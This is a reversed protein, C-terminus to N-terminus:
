AAAPVLTSIARVIRRLLDVVRPGWRSAVDDDLAVVAHRRVATVHSWGPRNAVTAGSQHCCKTDALFIVDPDADVIYEASLQPYDPVKSKAADAINRLGVLRYLQGIFTSSTVSYYTPDLEYYFAPAVAFAPASAVIREIRSRMSSVLTDADAVHGTATGLERIQDYTDRLDTAAPELLVAIHLAELSRVLSGSENSIVVLDPDFKAIAEVNPQYASLKTTPAQPPYNSYSDVAVVQDAAHIAFLMETATPSMSVIRTPQRPLTVKGNAGQLTVPFDGADPSVSPRGAGPSSGNSCAALIVLLATLLFRRPHTAM